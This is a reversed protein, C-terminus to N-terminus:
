PLRNEQNNKAIADIKKILNNDRGMKKAIAQAAIRNVIENPHHDAPHVWLAAANRNKLPGFLDIFSAGNGEAEKKVKQGIHKFPHGANLKYLPPFYVVYCSIGNERCTGIIERLARRSEQWGPSKGEFISKYYAVMLKNQRQNQLAQWALRLLRSKYVFKDPPSKLINGPEEYWRPTRIVQGTKQGIRYLRSEAESVDYKLVVADPKTKLAINRLLYLEQSTNYGGVGFNYSEFRVGSGAYKQNLICSTQEPYTDAFHVGEGFTFSDGLFAVRFTNEPKKTSFEGGRFGSSNTIHDVENDKGFYGRPNGDYIFRIRQSPTNLYILDGNDQRIFAFQVPYTHHQYFKPQNLCFLLLEAIVM